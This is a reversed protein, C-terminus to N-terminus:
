DVTFIGRFFGPDPDHDARVLWSRLDQPNPNKIGQFYTPPTLTHKVERFHRM